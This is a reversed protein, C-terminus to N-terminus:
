KLMKDLLMDVEWRTYNLIGDVYLIKGDKDLLVNMPYSRVGFQRLNQGQDTIHTFNIPRTTLFTDVQDKKNFTIAVFDAKGEYKEAIENLEPIEKICPPCTTFWFNVFIPKGNTKIGFLELPFDEGIKDMFKRYPTRQKSYDPKIGVRYFVSDNRRISDYLMVIGQQDKVQESIDDFINQNVINKDPLQYLKVEQANLAFATFLLCILSLNKINM